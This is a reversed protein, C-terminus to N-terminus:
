PLGSPESLNPYRERVIELLRSLAPNLGDARWIAMFSLVAPGSDTYVPRFAVYSGGIGMASELLPLVGMGSAVLALLRDLSADHCQINLSGLGALKSTLV